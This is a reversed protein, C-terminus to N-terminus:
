RKKNVKGTRAAAGSLKKGVGLDGNELIKRIIKIYIVKINEVPMGM